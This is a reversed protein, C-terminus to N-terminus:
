NWLRKTGKGTKKKLAAPGSRPAGKICLLDSNNYGSQRSKYLAPGCRAERKAPEAFKERSKLNKKCKQFFGALILTHYSYIWVRYPGARGAATM